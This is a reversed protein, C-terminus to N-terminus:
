DVAPTWTMGNLPQLGVANIQGDRYSLLPRITESFQEPPMPQLKVNVPVIYSASDAKVPVRYAADLLLAENVEIEPYSSEFVVAGQSYGETVLIHQGDPSFTPANVRSQDPFQFLDTEDFQEFLPFHHVKANRWTTGSLFHAKESVAELVADKGTPGVRFGTYFLVEPPATFQIIPEFQYSGAATEIKVQFVREQDPLKTLAVLRGDPHWDFEIFLEDTNRHLQVGEKTYVTFRPNESNSGCDRSNEAVFMAVREVDPSLWVPPFIDTDLAFSSTVVGTRSNKINIQQAETSPLFQCYPDPVHGHDVLYEVFVSGDRSPYAYGKSVEVRNGTQLNFRESGNKLPIWIDGSHIGNPGSNTASSPSVGSSGSSDIPSGSETCGTGFALLLLITILYPKAM